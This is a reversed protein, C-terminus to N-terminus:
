FPLKLKFKEKLSKDNLDPCETNTPPPIIQESIYYVLDRYRLACTCADKRLLVGAALGESIPISDTGSIPTIHCQVMFIDPVLLQTPPAEIVPAPGRSSGVSLCGTLLLVVLFVVILLTATLSPQFKRNKM